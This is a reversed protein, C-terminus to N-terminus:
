NDYAQYIQIYKKNPKLQLQNNQITKGGAFLKDFNGDM